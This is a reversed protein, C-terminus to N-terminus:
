LWVDGFEHEWARIQVLIWFCPPQRVQHTFSPPHSEGGGHCFSGSKEQLTKIFLHCLFHPLTGTWRLFSSMGYYVWCGVDWLMVDCRLLVLGSFGMLGDGLM